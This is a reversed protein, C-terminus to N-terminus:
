GLHYVAELALWLHASVCLWVLTSLQLHRIVHKQEEFTTFAVGVQRHPDIHEQPIDQPPDSLRRNLGEPDRVDIIKSCLLISCQINTLFVYCLPPCISLFSVCKVM